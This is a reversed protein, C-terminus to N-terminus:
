PAETDALRRALAALEPDSEREAQARALAAVAACPLYAAAVLAAARVRREDSGLAREFLRASAEGDLFGVSRTLAWVQRDADASAACAEIEDWGVCSLSARLAAGLAQARAGEVVVWRLGLRADTVFTAQAGDGITILQHPHSASEGVINVLSLGAAVLAEDIAERDVDDALVLTTPM